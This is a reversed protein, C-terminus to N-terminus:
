RRALQRELRGVLRHRPWPGTPKMTALNTFMLAHEIKPTPLELWRRVNTLAIAEVPYLRAPRDEFPGSRRDAQQLHVDLASAIRLALLAQDDTWHLIVEQYPGLQAAVTSRRGARLTLLERTFLALHDGTDFRRDPIAEVLAYLPEAGPDDLALAFLTTLAAQTLSFPLEAQGPRLTPRNRDRLLLSCRRLAQGNRAEDFGRGDGRLVRALGHGLHWTGLMWAAVPVQARLRPESAADILVKEQEERLFRVNAARDAWETLSRSLSTIKSQDRM